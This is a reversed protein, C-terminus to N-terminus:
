VKAVKMVQKQTTEAQIIDRRVSYMYRGLKLQEHSNWARSCAMDNHSKIYM